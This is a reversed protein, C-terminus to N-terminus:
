GRAQATVSHIRIQNAVLDARTPRARSRTPIRRPPAVLSLTGGSDGASSRIDAAMERRWWDALEDVTAQDIDDRRLKLFQKVLSRIPRQRTSAIGALRLEERLAKASLGEEVARLLWRSRDSEGLHAVVLHHWWTLGSMRSGLQFKRSLSAAMALTHRSYGTIDAAMERVARKKMTHFVDDEGRVMWDGVDWMLSSGSRQHDQSRMGLRIGVDRWTEPSLGLRRPLQDRSPSVLPAVAM